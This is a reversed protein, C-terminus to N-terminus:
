QQVNDGKVQVGIAYLPDEQTPSSPWIQSSKCLYQRSQYSLIYQYLNVWDKAFIKWANLRIAHYLVQALAYESDKLWWAQHPAHLPLFGQCHSYIFDWVKEKTLAIVVMCHTKARLFEPTHVCTLLVPKLRLLCLAAMLHDCMWTSTVRTFSVLVFKDHDKACQRFM